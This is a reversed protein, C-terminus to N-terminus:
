NKLSIIQYHLANGKVSKVPGHVVFLDGGDSFSFLVEFIDFNKFFFIKKQIHSVNIQEYDILLTFQFYSRYDLM